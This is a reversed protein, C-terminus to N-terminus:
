LPELAYGSWGLEEFEGAILLGLLMGLAALVPFRVTSLPLGLLRMVPYTLALVGPTLLVAAAYWGKAKIRRYDLSGPWGALM